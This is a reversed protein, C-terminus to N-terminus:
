IEASTNITTVNKDRDYCLDFEALACMFAPAKSKTNHFLVYVCCISVGLNSHTKFCDLELLLIAM